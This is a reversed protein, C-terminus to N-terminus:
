VTLYEFDDKLIKSVHTLGPVKGKRMFHLCMVASRTTANEKSASLLFVLKISALSPWVRACIYNGKFTNRYWISHVAGTESTNCHKRSVEASNSLFYAPECQLQISWQFRVMNFYHQFWDPMPQPSQSFYSISKGLKKRNGPNVTPPSGLSISRSPRCSFFRLFTPPVTSLFPFYCLLESYKLPSFPTLWSFLPPAPVPLVLYPFPIPPKSVVQLVIM